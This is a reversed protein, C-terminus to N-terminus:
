SALLSWSRSLCRRGGGHRGDEMMMWMWMWGNGNCWTQQDDLSIKYVM